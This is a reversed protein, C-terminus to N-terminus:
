HPMWDHSYGGKLRSKALPKEVRDRHAILGRFKM